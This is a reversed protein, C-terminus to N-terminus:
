DSGKGLRSSSARRFSAGPLFESEELGAGKKLGVKEWAKVALPIFAEPEGSDQRLGKWRRAREPDSLFDEFFPKISFTDPLYILLGASPPYTQRHHFHRSPCTPDTLNHCLLQLPAPDYM